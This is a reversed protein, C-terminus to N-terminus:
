EPSVSRSTRRPRRQRTHTGESRTDGTEEELHLRRDILIIHAQALNAHYLRNERDRLNDAVEALRLYEDREAVYNHRKSVWPVLLPCEFCHKASRCAGQLQIDKGCSGWELKANDPNRRLIDEQDSREAIDIIPRQCAITLRLAEARLAKAMDGAVVLKQQAKYFAETTSSYKHRMICRVRERNHITYTLHTGLTTRGDPLKLDHPLSIRNQQRIMRRLDYNLLPTNLVRPKGQVSTFLLNTGLVSRAASGEDIMAQLLLLTDQEIPVMDPNKNPAHVHLRHKGYVEDIQVDDVTLTNIESSRIGDNFALWCAVLAPLNAKIVTTNKSDLYSQWEESMLTYLESYQEGTLARQEITERAAEETGKLTNRRVNRLRDVTIGSTGSLGLLNGFRAAEALSTILGRRYYLSLKSQRHYGDQEKLWEVYIGWDVEDFSDLNTTMMDHELLFRVLWRAVKWIGEARSISVSQYAKELVAHWWPRVEQPLVSFDINRQKLLSGKWYPAIWHDEDLVKVVENNRCFFERV